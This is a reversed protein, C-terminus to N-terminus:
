GIAWWTHMGCISCMEAQSCSTNRKHIGAVHLRNCRWSAPTGAPASLREPPTVRGSVGGGRDHKEWRPM